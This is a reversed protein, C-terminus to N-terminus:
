DSFLDPSPATDSPNPESVVGISRLANVIGAPDRRYAAALSHLLDTVSPDGDYRGARTVIFGLHEALEFLPERAFPELVPRYKKIDDKRAM